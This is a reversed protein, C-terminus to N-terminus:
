DDWLCARVETITFYDPPAGCVQDASCSEPDDQECEQHCWGTGTEVEADLFGISCAFGIPCGGRYNEFTADCERTCFGSMCLCPDGDVCPANLPLECVRASCTGSICEQDDSCGEGGEYQATCQGNDGCFLGSECQADSCQDCPPSEVDACDRIVGDDCFQKSLPLSGSCPPMCSGRVCSAPGDPAAPCDADAECSPSCLKGPGERPDNVCADSACEDSSECPEYDATYEPQNGDSGCSPYALLLGALVTGRGALRLWRTLRSSKQM